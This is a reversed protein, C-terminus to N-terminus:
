EKNIGVGMKSTNVSYSYETIQFCVWVTVQIGVWLIYKHTYELQSELIIGFSTPLSVDDLGEQFHCMDATFLLTYQHDCAFSDEMSSVCCCM